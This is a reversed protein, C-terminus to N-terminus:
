KVDVIYRGPVLTMPGGYSVAQGNCTVRKGVANPLILTATTNAPVSFQYHWGSGQRNWGSEIRGYSSDYYGRAFTMSGSFDPQPKLYFHKWGPNEEDPSIGLSDSYLWAGVAGFSYHNFSNMSNNGGFGGDITYSNLREWITTAGQDVPYLWSPYEHNELMKYAIDAHGNESLARSIQATGIFGTMLSYAPRAVKDDDVNERLCAEALYEAAAARNTNNLVNLGLAVAYSTQTDMLGGESNLSRRTTKDFFKDNFWNMRANRVQAYYAADRENGLVKAADALIEIDKIEQAALLFKVDNKSNEPGLWDGLEMFSKESVFGNEDVNRELYDVYRKMAPYHEALTKADGYQRYIEWPVVMGASGWLIGGFGGGIPAIDGFRGSDDQLDRMADLHRALFRDADWLYNATRSFVSLDGSWGMRENRQPCDTPIALFNARTSRLINQYLKNVDADSCEFNGTWSNASSLVTVEVDELPLRDVGTIEVYRYGHYTSRPAIVNAGNKLTYVDTALAGRINELMLEGGHEADNEPYIMEAFRLIVVDGAKGNRIKINPVGALNAGMDYIFVKDAIKRASVAQVTEVARVPIDEQAVFDINMYNIEQEVGTTPHKWTGFFATSPNLPVIKAQQWSKVHNERRADYIEGQFFSGSILPAAESVQWNRPQTTVVQQTGDEYTVVLKLLLSQRDGFYNWNAGQFTGAGSWWGESLQALLSNKGSKLADTVDYVQYNQTKDYQTFGPAFYDDSVKAGNLSLEYIGRATAYIRARAIKKNQLSFDTRLLPMSGHSPNATVLVGNSGGSVTCVGSKVRVGKKGAFISKTASDTFVANAPARFNLIEFNKFQAQQGADVVFGIDAVMPFSIYDGGPGAPNVVYGKSWFNAEPMEPAEDDVGFRIIGHNSDLWVKHFDHANSRNITAASIECEALPKDSDNASYGHRYVKLKATGSNKEVDNIDLVLELRSEDKAAALGWLNKEAHMLRPDNAGFVIGARNSGQSIKVDAALKYVALSQSYLPLEGSGIWQAGQWNGTGRRAPNLGTEFTASAERVDGDSDWVKVTWTYPTEPSPAKGAYSINQSRGDAVVGSDWVINGDADRVIIEYFSQQLNQPTSLDAKMQWGFIPSVDDLGLPNTMRNVTLNEVTFDAALASGSLGGLALLSLLAARKMIKRHFKM